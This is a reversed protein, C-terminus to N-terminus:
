SPLVGDKQGSSSSFIPWWSGCPTTSVGCLFSQLHPGSLERCSGASPSPGLHPYTYVLSLSVYCLSWSIFQRIFPQGCGLRVEPDEGLLGLLTTFPKLIFQCQSQYCVSPLNSTTIWFFSNIAKFDCEGSSKIPALTECCLIGFNSLICFKLHSFYLCFCNLLVWSVIILLSCCEPSGFAPIILVLSLAVRM